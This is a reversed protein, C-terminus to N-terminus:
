TYQKQYQERKRKIEQVAKMIRRIRDSRNDRGPDEGGAQGNDPRRKKIKHGKKKEPKMYGIGDTFPDNIYRDNILTYDEPRKYAGAAPIYDRPIEPQGCTRRVGQHTPHYARRQYLGPRFRQDPM